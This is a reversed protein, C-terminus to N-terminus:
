QAIFTYMIWGNQMEPAVTSISFRCKKAYLLANEGICSEKYSSGKKDIVAEIVLGERDVIINVKVTGSGKCIYAPIALKEDRRQTLEYMATVNGKFSGSSTRKESSEEGVNVETKSKENTIVEQKKEKKYKAFEQSEFERLEKEVQEEISKETRSDYKEETYERKDEANFAKNSVPEDPNPQSVEQIEKPLDEIEMFEVPTIKQVFVKSEYKGWGDLTKYVSFVIFVVHLLISFSVAIITLKVISRPQYM